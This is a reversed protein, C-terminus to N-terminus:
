EAFGYRCSRRLGRHSHASLQVLSRDAPELGEPAGLGPGQAVHDFLSDMDGVTIVLDRHSVQLTTARQEVTTQDPKDAELNGNVM